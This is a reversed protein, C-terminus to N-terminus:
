VKELIMFLESGARQPISNYCDEMTKINFYPAFYGMYEEQCGGFPPGGEFSRNFLVGVLKGKVSLLSAMKEAYSSRLSPDIACFFTQEIILDFQNELTFFDSAILQESPFAPHKTQFQDLASQAYDCVYVNKFGKEFLYAAEHGYGAGPILIKTNRDTLQDIYNKLPSSVTGIDWGTLQNQYREEWYKASLNM